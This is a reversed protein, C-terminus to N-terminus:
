AKQVRFNVTGSANTLVVRVTWDGATGAQTSSSGDNTIPGSYVQQGDADLITLTGSGATLTTSKDVSATTGTNTWTYVRVESVDTIGTAQLEFSDVNNVIEPQFQPNTLSDGGGCAAAAPVILLLSLLALLTQRRPRM